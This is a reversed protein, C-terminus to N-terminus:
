NIKNCSFIRNDELRLASLKKGWVCGTDLASINIKGTKGELAAWHGFLIHFPDELIKLSWDFWPKMQPPKENAKGKNVLDLTGDNKCFRMRTFYNINLRLREIESDCKSSHNPENGYMNELLVKSDPGKLIETLELSFKELEERTWHPPIGAHTMIYPKMEGEIKLNSIHHFPLEKIWSVYIDINEDELIAQFTDSDSIEKVGEAVALFHLDHNGLTIHCNKKISYLFEITELSKPGRNIIDGCILLQDQESQFKIKDLLIILEDYCGQIDGIAYTAM